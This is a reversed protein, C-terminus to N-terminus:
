KEAPVSVPTLRERFWRCIAARLEKDMEDSDNTLVDQLQEATLIRSIGDAKGRFVRARVLDRVVQVLIAKNEANLRDFRECLDRAIVALISENTDEDVPRFKVERENGNDKGM